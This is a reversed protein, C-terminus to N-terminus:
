KLLLTWVYQSAPDQTLYLISTNWLYVIDPEHSSTFNCYSTKGNMLYFLSWKSLAISMNSHQMTSFQSKWSPAVVRRMYYCIKVLQLKLNLLAVLNCLM